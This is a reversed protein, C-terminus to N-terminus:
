PGFLFPISEENGINEVMTDITFTQKRVVEGKRPKLALLDLPSKKKESGAGCKLCFIYGKGRLLSSYWSNYYVNHSIFSITFTAVFIM